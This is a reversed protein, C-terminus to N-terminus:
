FYNKKSKQKKQTIMEGRNGEIIIICFAILSDVLISSFCLPKKEQLGKQTILDGEKM